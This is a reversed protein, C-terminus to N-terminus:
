RVCERKICTGYVLVGDCKMWSGLLYAFASLIIILGIPIQCREWFTM